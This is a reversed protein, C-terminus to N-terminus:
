SVPLKYIVAETPHAVEGVVRARKAEPLLGNIAKFASQLDQEKTIIPEITKIQKDNLNMKEVVFSLLLELPIAKHVALLEVRSDLESSEKKFRDCCEEHLRLVGNRFVYDLYLDEFDEDSPIQGLAEQQLRFAHRSLVGGSANLKRMDNSYSREFLEPFSIGNVSKLELDKSLETEQAHLEVVSWSKDVRLNSQKYSEIIEQNLSNSTTYVEGNTGTASIDVWTIGRNDAYVCAIQKKDLNTLGVVHLGEMEVVRFTGQQIFGLAELERLSHQVEPEVLWGYQQVPVLSITSPPSEPEQYLELSEVRRVHARDRFWLVILGVMFVTGILLAALEM